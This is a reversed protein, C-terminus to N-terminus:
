MRLDGLVTRRVEELMSYDHPYALVRVSALRCARVLQDLQGKLHQRDTIDLRYAYRILEILAHRGSLPVVAIAGADRRDPRALIYICKLSVPGVRVTQRPEAEVRRKMSDHAIHRIRSGPVAFARLVDPWLRLGPYGAFARLQGGGHDLVLCDDALVPFGAGRESARRRRHAM